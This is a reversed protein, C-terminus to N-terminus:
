RLIVEVSTQKDGLLWHVRRVDVTVREGPKKNWLEVMVDAYQEVPEGNLALIRDGQRIGAAEAASGPAFAAVKVGEDGSDLFAGLKGAPPLSREEPLLLFDGMEPEIQGDIGQLVIATQVDKRRTLRDPIGLGYAVHGSGALVVLQRQPNEDLFRAARDAMGEDWLLQVTLFNEFQGHEMGPHSSFVTMLRERYAENDSDLDDPIQERDQETLSDLGGESVKKTIERPVNLAIVPISKDRAFDLIPKYHRYDFRWRDYYETRRLFEKESTRGAIFDDLHAQFPQQFFEMGIAMDPNHRYLRQIIALQNLHHDYRDHTEGVFVVDKAALQPVIGDLDPMARLNLVRPVVYGAEAGQPHAATSTMPHSHSQAHLGSHSSPASQCAGLTGSLTVALLGRLFRNSPVM